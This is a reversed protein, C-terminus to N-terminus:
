VAVEGWRTDVRWISTMSAATRARGRVVWAGLSVM